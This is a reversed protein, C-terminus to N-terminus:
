RTQADPGIGPKLTACLAALSDVQRRLWLVQAFLGVTAGALFIIPVILLQAIGPWPGLSTGMLMVLSLSLPFLYSFWSPRARPTLREVWWADRWLLAAAVLAIVLFLLLPPHEM